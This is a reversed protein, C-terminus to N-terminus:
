RTKAASRPVRGPTGLRQALGLAPTAPQWEQAAVAQGEAGEGKESSASVCVLAIAAVVAVATAAEVIHSRDRGALAYARLSDRYVGEPNLRGPPLELPCPLPFFSTYFSALLAQVAKPAEKMDDNVCVFKPRRGRVSDLQGRTKNYDDSVMEFAVEDSNPLEVGTPGFRAHKALGDMVAPCDAVAQWTIFPITTTTVEEHVIGGPTDIARMSTSRKWPALCAAIADVEAQTPSRKHVVSALTRVENGDLVGDGDTDLERRFYTVVDLGARAGGELVFWMYIFAYQVDGGDRFRHASTADFEAPFRAQLDRMAKVDIMHPMHAPVKRGRKGFDRSILRNSLVLSEAYTDSGLRRGGAAVGARASTWAAHLLSAFAAAGAPEEEGTLKRGASTPAASADEAAEKPANVGAARLAELARRRAEGLPSAGAAAGAGARERLRRPGPVPAGAGLPRGTADDTDFGSARLRPLASRPLASRGAQSQGEAEAFTSPPQVMGASTNSGNAANSHEVPGRTGTCAALALDFGVEVEGTGLTTGWGLSTYLQPVATWEALPGPKLRVWVPVSVSPITSPAAVVTANTANGGATANAAEERAAGVAELAAGLSERLLVLSVLRATPIVSGTRVIGSPSVDAHTPELYWTSAEAGGCSAEDDTANTEGVAVSLCGDVAAAAGALDEDDAASHQACTIISAQERIWVSAARAVGCTVATLNLLVLSDHPSVRVLAEEGEAAGECSSSAQLPLLTGPLTLSSGNRTVGAAVVTHLAAAVSGVTSDHLSTAAAAFLATKLAGAASARAEAIWKHWAVDAHVSPPGADVLSEVGCDGADFGCAPVRCAPDCTRDGLWADPCGVACPRPSPSPAPSAAVVTSSAATYSEHRGGKHSYSTSTSTTAGGRSKGGGVCDGADWLCASVNCASDCYGDGIWNDVCGTNCKPVDWALYVKQGSAHTFFDDPWTDSGLFVDDNFYIFRNSLGPIRHLHVEISPSSFVPLHDPNPFIDAHTVLHVRPHSLDLWSPVQGNTILHVRRIWPAYKFLSRLSYRLEDNDRYRNLSSVSEPATSNPLPPPPAEGGGHEADWTRRHSLMLKLWESDSGNVWTYVVDMPDHCLRESADVSGINDVATACGSLLARAHMMGM